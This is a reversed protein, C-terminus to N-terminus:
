TVTGVSRGAAPRARAVVSGPPVAEAATGEAYGCRRYMSGIHARNLIRGLGVLSTGFQRIYGDIVNRQRDTHFIDVDIGERCEVEEPSLAFNSEMMRVLDFRFRERRIGESDFLHRKRLLSFRELDVLYAEKRESARGAGALLERATAFAIANLAEMHQFVAIARYKYIENTGYEANLFQEIRGPAQIFARLEAESTWLNKEEETAYDRYLAAIPGDGAEIKDHIAMILDSREVGNRALFQVVDYFIGNNNFIEVTLSLARCARYDAYSMTSNAVCIEEIEASAFPKGRFTYVGFNMPKVRYRTNMRYKERSAKGAAETGALLLFQYTRILTFGANLVDTISRFHARKSDGPLCLIVESFSCAGDTEATRAVDIVADLPLNKRKIIGLVEPDTSQVAAGPPLTGRLIKSVELVRQKHNKATAITVFKPWDHTDQLHRMYTATEIDEEFMGFNLDTIIFDPVKVRQAIYDLEWKVRDMSVRRTKNFYLAGEHCFTCSYPCGRASQVMPILHDDFFKDSLGDAFTSPIENLDEIRPLMDGKIMEGDVLYATNPIRVRTAKLREADFGFTELKEFLEVFVREGEGEVAFDVDPYTDLFERQERLDSPYNVGGFVTVTEPAVAKLRRVYEYSLHMNWAFISFCAIRPTNADLYRSLDEPYRFIEFDIRDGLAKRAYAAVMAVGLPFTNASVLQGTHTLDTFSVKVSM